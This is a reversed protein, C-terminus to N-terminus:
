EETEKNERLLKILMLMGTMTARDIVRDRTGPFQYCESYIRTKCKVCIWVTGVPKSQSGGGPGAIGSTAISCETKLLSSVNECMQEVVCQSVAGYTTLDDTSVGLIRHKIDNSYSIVSGKFYDSSGAIETIEHAVNGGTCSEATSVTLGRSRLMDGLIAAVPKDEYSIISDGLIAHLQESLKNMDNTLQAHDPYRGTLRLRIIGPRPLYALHIYKPINQEFQELKIALASESFDIVIFTRHEISENSCFHKMLQPIVEREMMQETEFPVGPMAVLVKGQREFWMIPATGVRNQIVRCSDPVYAQAATLDNIKLHRKEVVELVNKEVEKDYIMKGGFYKRMAEKTIDDKTPGLGGTTLVLDTNAFGEDIASIIEKENDGIVKISKVNWGLPNVHRAIWGSNTDIVQGILLEDGIVIISIDM